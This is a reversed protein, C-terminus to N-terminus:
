SFLLMGCFGPKAVTITKQSACGWRILDCESDYTRGDSGCVASKAGMCPGPCVCRPQGQYVECIANHACRGVACLDSTVPRTTPPVARPTPAQTVAPLTRVLFSELFITDPTSIRFYEGARSTSYILAM